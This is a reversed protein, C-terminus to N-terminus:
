KSDGKEKKLYGRKAGKEAHKTHTKETANADHAHLKDPIFTSDRRKTKEVDSRAKTGFFRSLKRPSSHREIEAGKAKM